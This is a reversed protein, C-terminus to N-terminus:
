REAVPLYTVRNSAGAVANLKARDLKKDSIKILGESLWRDVNTRGYLHYASTKSITVPMSYTATTFAKSCGATANKLLIILEGLKM